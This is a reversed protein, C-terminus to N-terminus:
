KAFYAAAAAIAAMILGILVAAIGKGAVPKSVPPKEETREVDPPPKDAVPRSAEVSPWPTDKIAQWAKYRDRLKGAYYEVQGTGNYGKAFAEWDGRRLADALKKKTIFTVMAQLQNEEDAAFARIMDQVTAYGCVLHNFGMIQPGGWSASRLAATEDITMAELIRPYSDKPYSGSRWKEYALGKAVATSRKTGAGLERWFIHPEYLSTLRGQVDFARGASEVDLLAHIKDEDVGIQAGISPLDIDDLRKAAGKFDKATMPM